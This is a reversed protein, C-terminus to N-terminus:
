SGPQKSPAGCAKDYRSRWRCCFLGFVGWWIALVRYAVWEM